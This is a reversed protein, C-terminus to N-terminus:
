ARSALLRFFRHAAAFAFAAILCERLYPFLINVTQNFATESVM